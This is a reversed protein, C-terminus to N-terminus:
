KFFNLVGNLDDLGEQALNILEGMMNFINIAVQILNYAMMIYSAITIAAFAITAATTAGFTAVGSAMKPLWQTIAKKVIKGLFEKVKDELKKAIIAYGRLAAALGVSWLSMYQLSRGIEVIRERAADADDGEWGEMAALGTEGIYNGTQRAGEIVTLWMECSTKMRGENGTVLGLLDELPQCLDIVFSVLTGSVWALPDKGFKENAKEFGEAANMIAEGKNIISEALMAAKPWDTLSEINSAKGTVDLMGEVGKFHGVKTAAGLVDPKWGELTNATAGQSPANDQWDPAQPQNM